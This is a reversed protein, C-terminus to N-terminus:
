DDAIRESASPTPEGAAGPSVFPPPSPRRYQKCDFCNWVKRCQERWCVVGDIQALMLRELHDANRSAKIYILEAPVAGKALFASAEYATQFSFLRDDGDDERLRAVHASHPGVFLVRDAVALAQRAVRRYVKGAKGAYDSITGFVITKRPASAAAVFALGSPITWYPAKISDLVFFPGGEKGHVSCRSFVPESRAVANACTELDLGCAIGCAIAALISTSWHEGVLRTAVHVTEGDHSVDLTLRGPWRSAVNSGRIDAKPSLGYTVVRAKTRTAMAMVHPDDANLIAAGHHPLRAVLNGKEEATAELSRFQSRHDSGITTVVGIRPQLIDLQRSISGPGITATEYVFYRTAARASMIAQRVRISQHTGAPENTRSQCLGIRSLVEQILATTTTKGCSGTVGVFTVHSLRARRLKTRWDLVRFSLRRKLSNGLNLRKAVTRLARRPDFRRRGKPTM